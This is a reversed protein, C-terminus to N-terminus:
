PELIVKLLAADGAQLRQMWAGGDRLPVVASVMADVDVRGQAITDLAQPYEGASAASGLLTLERTVTAQLALDVRPALNGVLVVSGGKRAMRIALDVTGGLGVAEFVVGAQRDDTMRTVTGVVLDPDTGGVPAAGLSEARALRGADIDVAIIGDVGRARLASILMLGILGAGVVVVPEELRGGLRSIAHLAITLPEVMAGQVFTVEDPLRYLIRAPIAVREAFAGPQRYDSCSVGLVRRRDCLNVQGRRCPPCTGCSITSDFTVRDGVSWGDVGPGVRGIIGAAEHGMIIPPIRRGSSGDMGHIDSGCIGCTRVQVLVEGEHVEPEPVDGYELQNPATLTLAKM